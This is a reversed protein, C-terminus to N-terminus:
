KDLSESRYEILRELITEFQQRVIHPQNNNEIMELTMNDLEVITIDIINM